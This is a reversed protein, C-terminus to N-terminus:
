PSRPHLEVLYRGQEDRVADTVITAGHKDFMTVGDSEILLDTLTKPVELMFRSASGGSVVIASERISFAADGGEPVLSIQRGSSLTIRVRSGPVVAIFRVSLREGPILAIGTGPVIASAPQTVPHRPRQVAAAIIRVLARHLPTVPLAAAVASVFLVAAAAISAPRWRRRAGARARVDAVRVDPVPHDLTRLLEAIDRELESM